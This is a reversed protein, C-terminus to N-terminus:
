RSGGRKRSAKIPVVLSVQAKTPGFYGWEGVNENDRWLIEYNESPFYGRYPISAYGVSLSLELNMRRSIPMSYGYSLGASWFEGQHCVNRKFEFDWMGSEAYLGWFHGVFRDREQRKATAPQPKPAFWWRWETGLSMFRICFENNAEGWRWWPFQSYVFTSFKNGLPLEVSCNLLTLVDYLLNSKFTLITRKETDVIDQNSALSDLISDDYLKTQASPQLNPLSYNQIEAQLDAQLKKSLDFTNRLGIIQDVLHEKQFVNNSVPKYTCVIYAMRLKSMHNKIIYNYTGNGLDQLQKKKIETSSKSYVIKLVEDRNHHHYNIELESELGEWNENVIRIAVDELSPLQSSKSSNAYIVNQAAVARQEALWKNRAYIGEPSAYAYITISDIKDSHSLMNNIRAIQHSNELYDEDIDIRNKHFYIFYCDHRLSDIIIPASSNNSSNSYLLSSDDIFSYVRSDSQGIAQVPLVFFLLAITIYLVCNKM